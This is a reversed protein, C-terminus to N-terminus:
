RNTIIIEVSIEHEDKNTECQIKESNTTKIETKLTFSNENYQETNDKKPNPEHIIDSESSCKKAHILDLEGNNMYMDIGSQELTSGKLSEFFVAKNNELTDVLQQREEFTDLCGDTGGLMLLIVLFFM